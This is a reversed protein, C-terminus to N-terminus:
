VNRVEGLPKCRKATTTPKIAPEVITRNRCGLAHQIHCIYASQAASCAAFLGAAAAKALPAAYHVLSPTTQFEVNTYRVLIAATVGM